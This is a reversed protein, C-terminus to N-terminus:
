PLGPFGAVVAKNDCYLSLVSVLSELSPSEVEKAVVAESSCRVDKASCSSVDNVLAPIFPLSTASKRLQCGNVFMEQDKRLLLFQGFLVYAKDFGKISLRKAYVDGIGAICHVAKEGMPECIFERHKVSTSM